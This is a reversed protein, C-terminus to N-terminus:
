FTSAINKIETYELYGEVGMERGVGSHKYGGFPIDPYPLCHTEDALPTNIWVQGTRMRKAVALSREPNTSLINGGLGFISDNCIRVAEDVDDYPIIVAVPGFGEEQAIRM